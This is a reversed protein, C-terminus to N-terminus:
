GAERALLRAPGIAHARGKSPLGAADAMSEHKPYRVNRPFPNGWRPMPMISGVVIYGFGLHTLAAVMDGNKDFGAALGVPNELPIGALNTRLRPDAPPPELARWPREWRLTSSALAHARDPPLQFLLPRNFRKYGNM